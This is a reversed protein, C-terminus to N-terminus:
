EIRIALDRILKGLVAMDKKVVASLEEPTSGVTELGIGQFRERTEALALYVIIEQNLRNIVPAPTGGTAFIGHVQRSEYGALGASAVTPLGPALPSPKLSTVALAKVKGTKIHGSVSAAAPFMFQLRGAMLDNLALAAGKYKVGVVNVGGMIKFLEAALHNGSGASATGYNLQGPKAKALAILEQVTAVPLENNVVLMNPSSSSLTIPAFDKTPDWTVGDQLFPLLWISSGYFMLTHGDPAAKALLGGAIVGGPRNVVVFQQGLRGSLAQAILRAPIDNAGGAEAAILTVPRVPYAQSWATGALLAGATCAALRRMFRVATTFRPM